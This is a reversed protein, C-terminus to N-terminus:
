MYRAATELSNMKFGFNCSNTAIYCSLCWYLAAKIIQSAFTGNVLLLPVSEGSVRLIANMGLLSALALQLIRM